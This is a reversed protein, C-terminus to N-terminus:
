WSQQPLLLLSLYLHRYVFILSLKIIIVSLNQSRHTVYVGEGWCWKLSTIYKQLTTLHMGLSKQLIYSFYYSLGKNSIPFRFIKQIFFYFLPYVIANVVLSDWFTGNFDMWQNWTLLPNFSCVSLHVSSMLVIYGPKALLPIFICINVQLHWM